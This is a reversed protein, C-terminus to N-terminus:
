GLSQFLVDLLAKETKEDFESAAESSFLYSANLLQDTALPARDRATIFKDVLKDIGPPLTQDFHAAVIDILQAKDPEPIQHQVCRRLFAAPFDREGNSTMVIVPYQSFSIVGREVMISEGESTTLVAHPSSSAIRQLEPIVFNGTDLVNLLDNPLDIDCKDIEDILLARPANTSGLAAGLPGLGLFMAMQEVESMKRRGRAYSKTATRGAAAVTQQQQLHQLRALADYQYLGEQLTSRSHINWTLVSGLRLQQAVSHILSSKGTGPKGTILLPRRLYLAANVADVLQARPRFSRAAADLRANGPLRWPPPPPLEAKHDPLPADPNYIPWATM